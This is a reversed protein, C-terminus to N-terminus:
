ETQRNKGMREVEREGCKLLLPLKGMSNKGETVTLLLLTKMLPPLPEGGGSPQRDREESQPPSDLSKQVDQELVQFELIIRKKNERRFIFITKERM